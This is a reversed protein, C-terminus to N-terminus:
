SFQNFIILNIIGAKGERFIKGVIPESCNIPIEGRWHPYPLIVIGDDVSCGDRSGGLDEGWRWSTIRTQNARGNVGVM